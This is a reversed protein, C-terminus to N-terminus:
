KRYDVVLASLPPVVTDDSVTVPEGTIVNRGEGLGDTMERFRSWTVKKEETSNNIFVFM